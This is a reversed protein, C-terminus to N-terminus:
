IELRGFTLFRDYFRNLTKELLTDVNTIILSRQIAKSMDGKFSLLCQPRKYLSWYRLSPYALVVKQSGICQNKSELIALWYIM